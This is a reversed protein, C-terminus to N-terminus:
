GIDTLKVIGFPNASSYPYNEETLSLGAEVPNMHIYDRKQNIFDVSFCDIPHNDQIWFQFNRNNSNFKAYYKFLHLMWEKRSEQPNQEIMEYLLKANYSKFNGLLKGLDQNDQARSIMHLHSPMLCYSFVELGKNDVCYNLNNLLALAYEKRTFVDIWGVVTLTVFFTGGPYFNYKSSM